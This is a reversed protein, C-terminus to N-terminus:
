RVLLRRVTESEEVLRPGDSVLVGFSAGPEFRTGRCHDCAKFPGPHGNYHHAQRSIVTGTGFIIRVVRLLGSCGKSGAHM